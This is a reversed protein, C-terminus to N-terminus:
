MLNKEQRSAIEPRSRPFYNSRAAWSGHRGFRGCAALGCEQGSRKRAKVRTRLPPLTQFLHAAGPRRGFPRRKRGALGRFSLAGVLDAGAESVAAEALLFEGM